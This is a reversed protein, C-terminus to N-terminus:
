TLAKTPKPVQFGKTTLAVTWPMNALLDRRKEGQEAESSPQSYLFVRHFTLPAEKITLNLCMEGFPRYSPTSNAM